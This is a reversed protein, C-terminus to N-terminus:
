RAELVCHKKPLSLPICSSAFIVLGQKSSMSLCCLFCAMSVMLFVVDSISARVLLDFCIVLAVVAANRFARLYSGSESGLLTLHSLFPIRTRDYRRPKTTSGCYSQQTAESWSTNADIIVVLLSIKTKDYGKICQLLRIYWPRVTEATTVETLPVASGAVSPRRANGYISWRRLGQSPLCPDVEPKRSVGIWAEVVRNWDNFPLYGCGNNGWDAGWSNRFFFGNTDYGEIAVVHFDCTKDSDSPCLAAQSLSGGDSKWFAPGNNYLPLAIFLPGNEVLAHKAGNITHIRSFGSLRRSCAL